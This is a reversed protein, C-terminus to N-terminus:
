SGARRRNGGKWSATPESVRFAGPGLSRIGDALEPVTAAVIVSPLRLRSAVYVHRTTTENGCCLWAAVPLEIPALHGHASEFERIASIVQQKEDALWKGAFVVPADTM